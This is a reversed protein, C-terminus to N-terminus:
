QQIGGDPTSYVFINKLLKLEKIEEPNATAYTWGNNLHEKFVVPGTKLFVKIPGLTTIFVTKPNFAKPSAQEAVKKTAAEKRAKSRQILEEINVQM